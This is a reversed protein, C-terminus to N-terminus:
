EKYLHWVFGDDTILSKFHQMNEKDFEWGTGEIRYTLMETETQEVEHEVWIFLGSPQIGFHIIKGGKPIEVEHKGRINVNYKFIRTTM